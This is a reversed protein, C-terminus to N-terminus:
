VHITHIKKPYIYLITQNEFNMSQSSIFYSHRTNSGCCCGKESFKRYIILRSETQFTVIPNNPIEKVFLNLKQFIQSVKSQRWLYGMFIGGLFIDCCVNSRISSCCCCRCFIETTIWTECIVILVRRIHSFKKMVTRSSRCRKLVVRCQSFSIHKKLRMRM